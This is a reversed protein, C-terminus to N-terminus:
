TSPLFEWGEKDLVLELFVAGKVDTVVMRSLYDDGHSPLGLLFAYAKGEEGLVAEIPSKWERYCHDFSEVLKQHLGPVADLDVKGQENLVAELEETAHYSSALVLPSSSRPGEEISKTMRVPVVEVRRGECPSSIELDGFYIAKAFSGEGRLLRDVGVLIEAPLDGDAMRFLKESHGPLQDSWKDDDYKFRSILGGDQDRIVIIEQTATIGDWGFEGLLCAKLNADEPALYDLLLNGM